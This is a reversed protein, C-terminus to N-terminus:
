TFCSVSIAQSNVFQVFCITVPSSTRTTSNALNKRGGDSGTGATVPHVNLHFAGGQGPGEVAPVSAEVVVVDVAGVIVLLVLGRGHPAARQMQDVAARPGVAVGGARGDAVLQCSLFHAHDLEELM